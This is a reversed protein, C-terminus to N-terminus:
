DPSVAVGKAQGLGNIGGVDDKKMEVYTLVSVPEPTPISRPTPTLRLTPIPTPTALNLTQELTSLNNIIASLGEPKRSIDSKEVIFGTVCDGNTRRLVWLHETYTSVKFSSGPGM